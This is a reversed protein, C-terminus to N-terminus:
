EKIASSYSIVVDGVNNPFDINFKLLEIPCVQSDIRFTYSPVAVGSFTTAPPIKTIVDSLTLEVTDSGFNDISIQLINELEFRNSTQVRTRYIRSKM